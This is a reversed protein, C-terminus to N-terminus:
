RTRLFRLLTEALFCLLEGLRFINNAGKGLKLLEVFLPLLKARYSFLEALRDPLAELGSCSNDVLTILGM